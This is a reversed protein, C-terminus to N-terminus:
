PRTERSKKHADVKKHFDLLDSVTVFQFGKKQLEPLIERLAEVTQERKGGYDHFLVIDGNRVNTIVKNVIKIVGPNSWDRTDQHWSWM